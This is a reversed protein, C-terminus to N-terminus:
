VCEWEVRENDEVGLVKFKTHYNGEFSFSFEGEGSSSAEQTWWGRLGSVSNVANFVTEPSTRIRLFHGIEQM